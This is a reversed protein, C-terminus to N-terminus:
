LARLRLRGRLCGCAGRGHDQPDHPRVPRMARQVRPLRLSTWGFATAGRDKGGVARRPRVVRQVFLYDGRRGRSKGLKLKYQYPLARAKICFLFGLGVDNWVQLNGL